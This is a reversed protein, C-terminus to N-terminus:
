AWFPLYRAHKRSKSLPDQPKILGAKVTDAIVRSAVSYNEDKMSFRKRLTANTMRQNCVQLLAAHWYCARIRDNRSMKAFPRYAYLVARLHSEDARFDPAPLQFVEVLQVVKDIGSGREECMKMRRMFSALADNRSRPPADLFRDTEILPEGPNTIEMRDDFIEIM